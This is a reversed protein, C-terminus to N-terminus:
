LVTISQPQTLISALHSNLYGLAQPSNIIVHALNFHQVHDFLTRNQIYRIPLTLQIQQYVMYFFPDCIIRKKLM